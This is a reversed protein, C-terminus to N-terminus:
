FRFCICSMASASLRSIRSNKSFRSPSPALWAMLMWMFCRIFVSCCPHQFPFQTLCTLTSKRCFRRSDLRKEPNSIHFFIGFDAHDTRDFHGFFSLDNLFLRYKTTHFVCFLPTEKPSNVLREHITWLNSVSSKVFNFRIHIIGVYLILQHSGRSKRLGWPLCAYRKVFRTTYAVSM